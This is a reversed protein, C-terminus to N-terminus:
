SPNDQLGKPLLLLHLHLLHTFMTFFKLHNLIEVITSLPFLFCYLIRNFFCPNSRSHKVIAVFNFQERFIMDFGTGLMNKWEVGFTSLSFIAICLLCLITFMAAKWKNFPLCAMYLVLLCTSTASFIIVTSIVDRSFGLHKSLMYTICVQIGITLAGPLSKRIVNLLFHGQVRKKNPQLALMFSPIGIAFMEILMLQSSIFPYSNDGSYKGLFGVMALVAIIMTCQLHPQLM